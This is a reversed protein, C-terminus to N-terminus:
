TILFYLELMARYELSEHQFFDVSSVRLVNHVVTGDSLTGMYGLLSATIAQRIAVAQAYTQAWADFQVRVRQMGENQLGPVSTHAITSWTLAPLPGNQPVVVPFINAGVLSTIATTSSLLNALGLQM